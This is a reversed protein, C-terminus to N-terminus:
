AGGVRAIARYSASCTPIAADPKNTTTRASFAIGGSRGGKKAKEDSAEVACGYVRESILLYGCTVHNQSRASERFCLSSPSRLREQQRIAKEKRKEEEM